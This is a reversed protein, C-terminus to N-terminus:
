GDQVFVDVPGSVAASEVPEVDRLWEAGGVVCGLFEYGLEACGDGGGVEVDARLGSGIVGGVEGM